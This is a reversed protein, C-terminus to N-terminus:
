TTSTTSQASSFHWSNAYRTSSVAAMIYHDDASCTNNNTGDHKAGLSHGLEHAAVNIRLFRGLDEIVSTSYGAPRCMTGVYAYGIVNNSKTGGSVTYLDYKTFLMVHDNSPLNSSGVWDRLAELVTLANVEGGSSTMTVNDETWTSAAATEVVVFSSLSIVLSSGMGTITKYRLNVGNMIYAFYERIDQLALLRREAASLGSDTRNFHRQYISYDIVALVDITYVPMQRSQLFPRSPPPIYEEPPPEVYDDGVPTVPEEEAIYEEQDRPTERRDRSKPELTYDKGNLSLIGKLQLHWNNEDGYCNITMAAGRSEDQFQAARQNDAM